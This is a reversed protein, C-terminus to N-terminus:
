VSAVEAVDVKVGPGMSSSLAIKRVYKGKSGSPKAKVIADVFADFNKRLDEAAFSAKGLGAHIIGAKEVRFEIQGGKAAKVAEAVNPTVTGLKPNPMLGRPGLVQGLTGVVRMADPSAIVVDFDMMGGKIQEALDEMGVFEAGLAKAKDASEGQAFVAVRVDAGTGHPLTTAGRVGQDSKRADVGLNVAVEVTENFKATGFEKILAVAEDLPYSQNADVKERFARVRKSLKAM